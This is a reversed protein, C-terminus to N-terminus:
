WSDNVTNNIQEANGRIVKISSILTICTSAIHRAERGVVVYRAYRYPNCCPNSSLACSFITINRGVLVLVFMFIDKMPFVDVEYCHQCGAKSVAM